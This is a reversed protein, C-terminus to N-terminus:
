DLARFNGAKNRPVIEGFSNEYTEEDLRALVEAGRAGKKVVDLITGDFDVGKHKRLHNRVDKWDKSGEVWVTFVVENETYDYNDGLADLDSPDIDDGPEVVRYFFLVKGSKGQERPPVFAGNRLRLIWDGTPLVKDDQLDDFSKNLIDDYDESM